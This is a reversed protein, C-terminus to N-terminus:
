GKTIKTYGKHGKHHFLSFWLSCLPKVFYVFLSFTHTIKKHASAKNHTKAESFSLVYFYIAGFHGSELCKRWETKQFPSELIFYPIKRALRASLTRTASDVGNSVVVSNVECQRNRSLLTVLTRRDWCYYPTLFWTLGNFVAQYHEALM